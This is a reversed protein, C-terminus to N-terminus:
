RIQFITNEHNEQSIKGVLERNTNFARKGFGKIQIRSYDCVGKRLIFSHKCKMIVKV